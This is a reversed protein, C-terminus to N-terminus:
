WTKEYQALFPPKPFLEYNHQLSASFPYLFSISLLLGIFRVGLARTKCHLRCGCRSRNIESPGTGACASRMCPEQCPQPKCQQLVLAAKTLFFKIKYQALLTHKWITKALFCTWSGNLSGTNEYHVQQQESVDNGRSQKHVACHIPRASARVGPRKVFNGCINM